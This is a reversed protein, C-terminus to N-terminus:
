GNTSYLQFYRQDYLNTKYDIKLSENSWGYNYEIPLETEWETYEDYLIRSSIAWDEIIKDVYKKGPIGLYSNSIPWLDNCIIKQFYFKQSIIKYSKHLM